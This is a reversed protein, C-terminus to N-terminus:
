DRVTHESYVEEVIQRVRKLFFGANIRIRFSKLALPGSDLTTFSVGIEIEKVFSPMEAPKIEARRLDATEPDFWFRGIWHEDDKVKSAVDFVLAPTGDGPAGEIRTFVYEPRKKASFPLIEDLAMRASPRPGSAPRVAEEARRRREKELNKRTEEAVAQTIDRTRGNKTEVAELITEDRDGDTFIVTKKVTTVTEPAWNRDMETRVSVVKASWNKLDALTKFREAARDLFAELGASSPNTQVPRPSAAAALCGALVLLSFRVSARARPAM